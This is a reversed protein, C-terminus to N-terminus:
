FTMARIVTILPKVHLRPSLTVKANYQGKLARFLPINIKAAPEVGVVAIPKPIFLM